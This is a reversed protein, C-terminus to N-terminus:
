YWAHKLATEYAIELRPLTVNGPIFHESQFIFGGGPKLDLMTQEITTILAATPAHPLLHTVDLGGHITLYQGYQQKVKLPEMGASSQVPHLVEIGMDVIGDMMQWINGDNHMAPIKGQQKIADVIRKDNPYVLQQWHRPSFLPGSTAGSDASIQVIDAGCAIANVAIRASWESLRQYLVATEANKAVMNMLGTEVGMFSYSAEVVGWIHAVIAKDDGRAAILQQLGEYLFPDDPDYLHENTIMEVALGDKGTLMTGGPGSVYQKYPFPLIHTFMDIGFSDYFADLSGYKREVASKIEESGAGRQYLWINMPVRDPEQHCIATLVREKSNM